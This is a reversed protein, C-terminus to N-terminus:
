PTAKLARLAGDLLSASVPDMTPEHPSVISGANEFLHPTVAYIPLLARQRAADIAGVTVVEQDTEIELLPRLNGSGALEFSWPSLPRQWGAKTRPSHAIIAPATADEAEELRVRAGVFEDDPVPLTAKAETRHMAERFDGFSHEPPLGTGAIWLVRGGAELYARLKEDFTEARLTHYNHFATAVIVFCPVQAPSPFGDRILDRVDFTAYPQGSQQWHRAIAASQLRSSFGLVAGNMAWCPEFVIGTSPSSEDIERLLPAFLAEQALSRQSLFDALNRTHAGEIGPTLAMVQDSKALRQAVAIDRLVRVVTWAGLEGMNEWLLERGAADGEGIWRAAGELVGVGRSSCFAAGTQGYLMIEALVTALTEGEDKLMMRDIAAQFLAKGGAPDHGSGALDLLPRLDSFDRDRSGPLPLKWEAWGYTATHVLPDHNSAVVDAVPHSYAAIWFSILAPDGERLADVLLLFALARGRDSHLDYRRKLGAETLKALATEGVDEALFPDFNDPYHSHHRVAEEIMEPSFSDRLDQPLREFIERTVDDHGAGWAHAKAPPLVAPLLAVLAVTIPFPLPLAPLRM